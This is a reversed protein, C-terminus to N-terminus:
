CDSARETENCLSTLVQRFSEVLAERTYQRSWTAAAEAAKRYDRRGDLYDLIASCVSGATPEVLAGRNGGGLMMPVCGVPAAVPV